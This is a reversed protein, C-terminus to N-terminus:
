LSLSSIYDKITAVLKDTTSPSCAKGALLHQSPDEAGMFPSLKVSSNEMREVFKLTSPVDVIKDDPSYVILHPTTIKAADIENIEDVLHIMPVLAEMPYRETWFQSHYENQPEFSYYPGSIWKALQLGWNWRMLGATRSKVGFNPSVMISASLDGAFDQTALWASLTSGTSTSILIIKKGILRAVEYADRTEKKWGDVTGEAMADGSRGHGQLRAYYINAGLQDALNETVPSIEQRSASFGHLYILAIDTQRIEKNQWRVLKESGEVIDEFSSETKSLYADITTISLGDIPNSTEARAIATQGSFIQIVFFCLTKFYKM